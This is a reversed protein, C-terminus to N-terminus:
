QFGALDRDTKAFAELSNDMEFARRLHTRASEEEGLIWLYCGINYHFTPMELLARPGQLLWNHAALTDGTEHLCFAGQLFYEANLPNIGCLVRATESAANWLKCEMQVVLKMELVESTAQDHVSLHQLEIMAEDPLGLDLWGSAARLTETVGM